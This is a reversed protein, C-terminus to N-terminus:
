PSLQTCSLSKCLGVYNQCVRQVWNLGQVSNDSRSVCALTNRAYASCETLPSRLPQTHIYIVCQTCRAWKLAAYAMPLCRHTPRFQWFMTSLKKLTPATDIVFSVFRYSSLGVDSCFLGVVACILGLESCVLGMVSCFVGVFSCFVGVFSCKLSLFSRFLSVLLAFSVWLFLLVCGCFLMQSESFSRLLSVFSRFLSVFSCLLPFLLGLFLLCPGLFLHVAAETGDRFM